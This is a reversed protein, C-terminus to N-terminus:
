DDIDVVILKKHKSMAYTISHRTGPSRGNWFAVVEDCSDIIQINRRFGAGKGYLDWKAEHVEIPLSRASAYLEALRDAGRAGGSVILKVDLADLVQELEKYNTYTQSGIVATKKM